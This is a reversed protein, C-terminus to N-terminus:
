MDFFEDSVTEVNDVRAQLQEIDNYNKNNQTELNDIRTLLEEINSTKAQITNIETSLTDFKDSLSQLNSTTLIETLMTVMSHLEQISNSIQSLTQPLFKEGVVSM